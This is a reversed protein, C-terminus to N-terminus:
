MEKRLEDIEIQLAEIESVIKEIMLSLGGDRIAMEKTMEMVDRLSM